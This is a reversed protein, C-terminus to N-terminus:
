GTEYLKSIAGNHLALLWSDRCRIAARTRQKALHTHDAGNHKDRFNVLGVCQERWRAVVLLVLLLPGRWIEV